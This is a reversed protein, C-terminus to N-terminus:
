IRFFFNQIKLGEEQYVFWAFSIDQDKNHFILM